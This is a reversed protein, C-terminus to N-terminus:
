HYRNEIVAEVDIHWWLSLFRRGRWERLSFSSTGLLSRLYTFVANRYHM